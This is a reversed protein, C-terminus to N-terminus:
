EILTGYGSRARRRGFFTRSLVVSGTFFKLRSHGGDTLTRFGNERESFHRLPNHFISSRFLTLGDPKHKIRTIFILKIKRHTFTQFHQGPVEIKGVEKTAKGISHTHRNREPFSETQTQGSM